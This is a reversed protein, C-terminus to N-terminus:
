ITGSMGLFAHLGGNVQGSVGHLLEKGTLQSKGKGTINEIITPINQVINATTYSNVRISDWSIMPAQSSNSAATYGNKTKITVVTTSM